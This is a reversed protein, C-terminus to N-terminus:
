QSLQQLLPGTAAVQSAWNGYGTDRGQIGRQLNDENM